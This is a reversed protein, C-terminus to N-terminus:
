VAAASFGDDGAQESSAKRRSAKGDLGQFRTRIENIWAVVVM